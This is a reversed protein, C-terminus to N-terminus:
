PADNVLRRSVTDLPGRQIVGTRRTLMHIGPHCLWPPVFYTRSIFSLFPLLKKFPVGGRQPDTEYLLSRGGTVSPTLTGAFFFLFFSLFFFLTSDVRQVRHGAMTLFVFSKPVRLKRDVASRALYKISEVFDETNTSLRLHHVSSRTLLSITFVARM